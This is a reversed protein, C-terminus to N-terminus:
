ETIIVVLESLYIDIIYLLFYHIRLVLSCRVLVVKRIEFESYFVLKSFIFQQFNHNLQTKSFTNKKYIYKLTRLLLLLM